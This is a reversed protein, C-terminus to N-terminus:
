KRHYTAESGAAPGIRRGYTKSPAEGTNRFREVLVQPRVVTVHPGFSPLWCEVDEINNLQVRLQLLGNPLGSLEQGEHWHRVRIEHTLSFQNETESM